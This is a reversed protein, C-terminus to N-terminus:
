EIAAGPPAETDEEKSHLLLERLGSLLGGWWVGMRGVFVVEDDGHRVPHDPRLASFGRHTLTIYTRPDDDDPGLSRDEFCVEVETKEDPAFNVARWEFVLREPPTWVTIRGTDVTRPLGDTGTRGDLTEFLRGGVGRELRIVGASGRSLRYALGRRWWRDIDDVFADFVLARPARVLVSARAQDGRLPAEAAAAPRNKEPM